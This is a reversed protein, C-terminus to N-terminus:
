SGSESRKSKQEMYRAGFSCAHTANGREGWSEQRRRFVHKSKVLWTILDRHQDPIPSLVLRHLSNKGGFCDCARVKLRPKVLLVLRSSVNEDSHIRYSFARSVAGLFLNAFYAMRIEIEVLFCTGRKLGDTSGPVHWWRAENEVSRWSFMLHDPADFAEVGSLRFRQQTGQGRLIAAVRCGSINGPKETKRTERVPLVVLGKNHADMVFGVGNVM